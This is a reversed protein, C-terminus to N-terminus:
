KEEEVHILKKFNLPLVWYDMDEGHTAIEEMKNINEIIDIWHNEQKDMIKSLDELGYSMARDNILTKEPKFKQDINSPTYYKEYRKKINEDNKIWSKLVYTPYKESLVHIIDFVIDCEKHTIIKTYETRAVTEVKKEKKM